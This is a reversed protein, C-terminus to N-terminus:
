GVREVGSGEVRLGLPVPPRLSRCSQPLSSRLVSGLCPSMEEADEITEM